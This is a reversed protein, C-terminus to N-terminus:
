HTRFTSFLWNHLSFLASFAPRAMVVDTWQLDNPYRYVSQGHHQPFPVRSPLNTERDQRLSKKWHYLTVKLGAPSREACHLLCTQYFSTKKGVSCDNDHSRRLIFMKNQTAFENSNHVSISKMGEITSSYTGTQMVTHTPTHTQPRQCLNLSFM